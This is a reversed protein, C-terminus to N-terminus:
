FFKHHTTIIYEVIRNFLDLDSIKFRKIIDNNVISNYIDTLLTRIQVEKNFRFRQPKEGGM